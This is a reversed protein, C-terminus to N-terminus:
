VRRRSLLRQYIALDGKAFCCFLVKSLKGNTKLFTEVTEIAIPAAEDIPFGFAGTSICPFALSSAAHQAALALSNAYCSALLRGEGTTGGRWIPGVTHIVYRAKLAFGPTIRAEGPPCGGLHHCAELLEPGAADHIAGDVGGGGLLTSNAANVIADVELKVINGLVAHMADSM